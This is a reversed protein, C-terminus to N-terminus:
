VKIETITISSCAKGGFRAGAASSSGNFYCTGSTSGARVRFTTEDTTGADMYYTFSVTTDYNYHASAVALAGSTDDQFLAVALPQNVSAAGYFIVDIKLKNTASEPTIALTMYEDGESIQPITNDHPLVTAGTAYVGTQMNVVQVAGGDHSNEDAYKKTVADQDSVPDVVNSILSNVVDIIAKTTDASYGATLIIQGPKTAHENGYLVISGGRAVAAAGGGAIGMSEDDSADATKPAIISGDSIYASDVLLKGGQTLQIENGAEDEYFLETTGAEGDKTYLFGKDAANTPKAAQRLTIKAHEGAADENYPSTAGTYHDVSLIEAVARALTRIYDDGQRRDSSGAPNATNIPDTKAM